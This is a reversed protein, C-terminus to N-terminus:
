PQPRNFRFEVDLKKSQEATLPKIGKMMEVAAQQEEQTIPKEARLYIDGIKVAYIAM